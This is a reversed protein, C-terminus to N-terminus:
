TKARANWELDALTKLLMPQIFHHLPIAGAMQATPTTVPTTLPSPAPTLGATRLDDQFWSQPVHRTVMKGLQPIQTAQHDRLRMGM